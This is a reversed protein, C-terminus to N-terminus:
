EDGSDEKKLLESIDNAYMMADQKLKAATPKHILDNLIGSTSRKIYNYSEIASGSPDLKSDWRSLFIVLVEQTLDDVDMGISDALSRKDGGVRPKYNRPYVNVEVKESQKGPKGPTDIIEKVAKNIGNRLFSIRSRFMPNMRMISSGDGLDIESLSHTFDMMEQPDEIKALKEYIEDRRRLKKLQRRIKAIAARHKAIIKEHQNIDDDMAAIRRELAMAVVKFTMSWTKPINENNNTCESLQNWALPVSLYSTVTDWHDILAQGEYKSKRGM